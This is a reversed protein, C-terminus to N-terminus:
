GLEVQSERLQLVPLGETDHRLPGLQHLPHLRQDAGIQRGLFERLPDTPQAVFPPSEVPACALIGRVLQLLELLGGVAGVLGTALVEGPLGLQAPLVLLPTLRQDFPQRVEGRCLGALM